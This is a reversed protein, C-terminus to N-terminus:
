PDFRVLGNRYDLTLVFQSLSYWGLIGAARIDVPIGDPILDTAVADLNEQRHGAFQLPLRKVVMLEPRRSIKDSPTVKVLPSLAPRDVKTASQLSAILFLGTEGDDVRVPVLLDPGSRIVQTFGPVATRDYCQPNEPRSAHPTLTLASHQLDLAILFPEFFEMGILGEGDVLDSA